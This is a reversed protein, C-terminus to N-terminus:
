NLKLIGSTKVASNIEELIGSKKVLLQILTLKKVKKEEKFFIQVNEAWYYRESSPM